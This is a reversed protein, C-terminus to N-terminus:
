HIVFPDTNQQQDLSLLTLSKLISVPTLIVLYEIDYDFKSKKKV